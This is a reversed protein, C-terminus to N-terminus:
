QQKNEEENCGRLGDKDLLFAKRVDLDAFNATVFEKEKLQTHGFIQYIGDFHENNLFESIDSWILSGKLSYGGRAHGIEDLCRIFKDNREKFKTNIYEANPIEPADKNIKRVINWWIRNIGAHTFMYKKDNIECEYALQFSDIDDKFLNYIPNREFPNYRSSKSIKDSIYHCDHNGLLLIIKHPTKDYEKMINIFNSYMDLKDINEYPYPDFYDGLFIVKDINDIVEEFPKQWFTRGHVDPIILINNIKDM